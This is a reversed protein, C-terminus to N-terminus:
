CICMIICTFIYMYTYYLSIKGKCHDGSTIPEKGSPKPKSVGVLCTFTLGYFANMHKLNSSNLCTMCMCTHVHVHAHIYMYMCTRMCYYQYGVDKVSIKLAGITGQSCQLETNLAM